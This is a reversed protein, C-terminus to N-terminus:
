QLFRNLQRRAIMSTLLNEPSLPKEGREAYRWIDAFIEQAAAEAEETSDTIKKALAWIFNRHIDPCAKITKREESGVMSPKSRKITRTALSAM